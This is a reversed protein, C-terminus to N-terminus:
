HIHQFTLIHMIIVVGGNAKTLLHPPAGPLPPAGPQYKKRYIAKTNAAVSVKPEHDQRTVMVIHASSQLISYRLDILREICAISVCVCVCVCVVCVCWVCWVCVCVVGCVGCVCVVCM